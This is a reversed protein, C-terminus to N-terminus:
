LDLSEASLSVSSHTWSVDGGSATLLPTRVARLIEWGRDLRRRLERKPM